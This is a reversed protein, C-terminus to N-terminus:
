LALDSYDIRSAEQSCTRWESVASLTVVVSSDCRANQTNCMQTTNDQNGFTGITNHKNGRAMFQKVCNTNLM